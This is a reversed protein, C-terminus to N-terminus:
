TANMIEKRLSSSDAGAMPCDVEDVAMEGIDCKSVVEKGTLMKHERGRMRKLRIKM